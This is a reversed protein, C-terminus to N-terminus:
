HESTMYTSLFKYYQEYTMNPLLNNKSITVSCGGSKLSSVDFENIGYDLAAHFIKEIEKERKHNVHLHLSINKTNFGYNEINEIIDIFDSYTLTGCTDSLCLKNLNLLTM